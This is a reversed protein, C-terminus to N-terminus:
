DFPRLMYLDEMGIGGDANNMHTYATFSLDWGTISNNRFWRKWQIWRAVTIITTGYFEPNDFVVYGTNAFAARGEDTMPTQTLLFLKPASYTMWTAAAFMHCVRAEFSPYHSRESARRVSYIGFDYWEVINASYLRAIFANLNVWRRYKDGNNGGNGPTSWLEQVVYKLEPLDAWFSRGPQTPSPFSILHSIIEVLKQQRGDFWPVQCVVELFARWFQRFLRPTPEQNQVRLIDLSHAATRPESGLAIFSNLAHYVGFGMPSAFLTSHDLQSLSQYYIDINYDNM